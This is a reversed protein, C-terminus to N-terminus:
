NNSEWNWEEPDGRLWIVNGETNVLVYKMFEYDESEHAKLWVETEALNNVPMCSHLEEIDMLSDASVGELRYQISYHPLPIDGERDDRVFGCVLCWEVGNDRHSREDLIL